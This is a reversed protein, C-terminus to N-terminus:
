FALQMAPSCNLFNVAKLQLWQGWRYPQWTEGIDMKLDNLAAKHTVASIDAQPPEVPKGGVMVPTFTPENIYPWVAVM